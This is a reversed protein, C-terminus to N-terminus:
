SIIDMYGLRKDNIKVSLTDYYLIPLIFGVGRLDIKPTPLESHVNLIPSFKLPGGKTVVM